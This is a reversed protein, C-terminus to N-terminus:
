RTGGQTLEEFDSGLVERIRALARMTRNRVAGQSVELLGAVQDVPLDDFFRLVLVARDLPQLEALAALLTTRLAPDADHGPQEPIVETPRERSSRRRRSSIFTRVLTTHAYAAANDIPRRGLPRQWAVYVKALTEQVLDEATHRNGCLLWASRYLQPTRAVAFAEFEATGAM